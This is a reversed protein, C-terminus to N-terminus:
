YVSAEGEPRRKFRRHVWYYQDPRERIRAELFQNMALADARVDGSPFNEMAPLIHLKYGQYDPLVESVFPVVRAGSIQALRSVATLTCAQIGFFPVFVSDRLGFDMDAALMIPKGSKLVRLIDRASGNRPIMVTGFRSRQEKSITETVDDSMPTYLSAVPHLISYVMCTAEIAAFHFGLFITPQEYSDQLPIASDIQMLGQLTKASGYWQTGRELYSRIVHRFTSRALKEREADSQEPFCLRLNTQLIHKRKGPILYLLSGLQEGLRAVLGYPLAALARLLGSTLTTQTRNKM